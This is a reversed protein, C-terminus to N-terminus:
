SNELWGIKHPMHLLWGTISYRSKQTTLVEHELLESRFLVARQKLPAIDVFNTNAHPWVLEESEPNFLRLAGGDETVWQDNMYIIMSILRNGRGKFQDIHKKYFSGPPYHAFHFEYGHIPLFCHRRLMFICEDLLSFFPDIMLDKQKDVWYIRDTRISNNLHHHHMAGIGAKKLADHELKTFFYHNLTQYLDDKLFPDIIVYGQASLTDIWNIWCDETHYSLM